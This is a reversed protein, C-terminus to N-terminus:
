DQRKWMGALSSVATFPPAPRGGERGVARREHRCGPSPLRQDRHYRADGDGGDLRRSPELLSFRPDQTENGGLLAAAFESVALSSKTGDAALSRHSSIM